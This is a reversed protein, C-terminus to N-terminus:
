DASASSRAPLGGGEPSGGGIRCAGRGDTIGNCESGRAWAAKRRIIARAAREPECVLIDGINNVEVRLGLLLPSFLFFVTDQKQSVAKNPETTESQRTLNKM